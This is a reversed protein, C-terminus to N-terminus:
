FGEYVGHLMVSYNLAGGSNNQLVYRAVGSDWYVNTMSASNKTNSYQSSPDAIEVTAALPGGIQFRSSYGASNVVDLVGTMTAGGLVSTAANAVTLIPQSVAASTFQTQTALAANHYRFSSPLPATTPYKPGAHVLNQGAIIVTSSGLFFCGRADLGWNSGNYDLAVGSGTFIFGDLTSGFVNRMYIGKHNPDVYINELRLGYLSQNRGFYFLWSNADTTQEDRINKFTLAYSAISSTTDNWYFGGAGGVWAQAGDFTTNTINMGSNATILPYNTGSYGALYLDQFHFHDMDITHNPNDALVVPKEAFITVNRITTFERGQTRLGISGSGRWYSNAGAISVDRIQMESVDWIDLAVKMYTTDQSTLTMGYISSQFNIGVGNSVKILSGNATPAFNLITINVGDGYFRFRDATFLLESTIKCTGKPVHIAKQSGAAQIAAVFASTDDFSSGDCRAGYAPDKVNIVGNFRDAIYGFISHAYGDPGAATTLQGWTPPYVLVLVGVITIGIVLWNRRPKNM